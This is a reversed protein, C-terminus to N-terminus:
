KNIIAKFLCVGCKEAEEIDRITTEEGCISCPKKKNLRRLEKRRAKLIKESEEVFEMM